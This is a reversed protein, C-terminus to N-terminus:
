LVTRGASDLQDMRPDEKVDAAWGVPRFVAWAAQPDQHGERCVRALLQPHDNHDSLIGFPGPLALGVELPTAHHM